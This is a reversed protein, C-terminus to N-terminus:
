ANEKALVKSQSPYLLIDAGRVFDPMISAAYKHLLSHILVFTSLRESSKWSAM